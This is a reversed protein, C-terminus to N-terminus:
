TAYWKADSHKADGETIVCDIWDITGLKTRDPHSLVASMETGSTAVRARGRVDVPVAAASFSTLSAAKDKRAKMYATMGTTDTDILRIDLYLTQFARRLDGDYLCTEVISTQPNAQRVATGLLGATGHVRVVSSPRIANSNGMSWAGGMNVKLLYADSGDSFWTYRETSDHTVVLNALTMASFLNRYQRNQWGQNLMGHWLDGNVTVAFHETETGAVAGRSPVGEDIIRDAEVWAGRTDQALRVVCNECYAIVSDGYGKLCRVAGARQIPVFGMLGESFLTWVDGEFKADYVTTSPIGLAALLQAHPIQSDMGGPPGYFVWGTDWAADQNITTRLPSETKWLSVLDTWQTASMHTGGLAGLFMQGQHECIAGVTLTTDVVMTNGSDNSPTSFVFANGKTAFWTDHFAALQWLGTGAAISKTNEQDTGNYTTVASAAYNSAVTHVTTPGFLLLKRKADLLQQHPWVMSESVGTVPYTVAPIDKLGRECAMRNRAQLLYPANVPIDAYPALGNQCATRFPIRRM